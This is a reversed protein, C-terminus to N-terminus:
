TLDSPMNACSRSGAATLGMGRAHRRVFLPEGWPAQLDAIAPSISPQSVNIALAAKATSGHRAAAVFYELQRLNIQILKEFGNFPFHINEM